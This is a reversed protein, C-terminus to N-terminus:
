ISIYSKLCRLCQKLKKWYTLALNKCFSKILKISHISFFNKASFGRISWHLPMRQPGALWPEWEKNQFFTTWVILFLFPLSNSFAQIESFPAQPLYAQFMWACYMADLLLKKHLTNPKWSPCFYTFIRIKQWSLQWNLSFLYFIVYVGTSNSSFAQM